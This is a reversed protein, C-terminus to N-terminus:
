VYVIPLSIADSEHIPCDGVQRTAERVGLPMRAVDNSPRASLLM